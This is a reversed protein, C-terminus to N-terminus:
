FPEEGPGQETRTRSRREAGREQQRQLLGEQRTTERKQGARARIQEVLIKSPGVGRGGILLFLGAGAVVVSGAFVTAGVIKRATSNKMSLAGLGLPGSISFLNGEDTSQDALASDLSAQSAPAAAAIGGANSPLYRKYAGSTFTTWPALNSGNGSISVAAKAQANADSQLQAPSGYKATRGPALSGFYNVQWLGISYDGTAPNNNLANPNGGSEALAIAAMVPAVAPNGGNADWLQEIQSFTLNAM